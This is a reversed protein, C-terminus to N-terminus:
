PQPPSNTDPMSSGSSPDPGTPPNPNLMSDPAGPTQGGALFPDSPPQPPVEIHGHHHGALHENSFRPESPTAPSTPIDTPPYTPPAFGSPADPPTQAYPPVGPNLSSPDASQGPYNAGPPPPWVGPAAPGTYYPANPDFQLGPGAPMGIMDRYALAPILVAMPLTAFLGLGCPLCSAIYILGFLLVFLAGQLWDQKIANTSKNIAEGLPVGDAVLAFAPYLMASVVLGPLICLITGVFVAIGTLLQLLFFSLMRPAGQFLMGVSIEQGRVQAVGMSFLGSYFFASVIYTALQVFWYGPMSYMAFAPNSFPNTPSAPAANLIAANLGLAFIGGYTIGLIVLGTILISVVWTGAQAVFLQWAEGIWEFRVKPQFQPTYAVSM